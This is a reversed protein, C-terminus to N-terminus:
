QARADFDDVIRLGSQWRLKSAERNSVVRSQRRAQIAQLSNGLKAAQDDLWAAGETRNSVYAYRFSSSGPLGFLAVM